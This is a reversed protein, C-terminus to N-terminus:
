GSAAAHDKVRGAVAPDGVVVISELWRLRPRVRSRISRRPSSRLEKEWTRIRPHGANSALLTPM